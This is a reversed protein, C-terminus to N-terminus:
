PVRLGCGVKAAVACFEQSLHRLGAELGVDSVLALAAVAARVLLLANTADHLPLPLPAEHGGALSASTSAAERLADAATVTWRAATNTWRGARLMDLVEAPLAPAAAAAPPPPLQTPLEPGPPVCPLASARGQM